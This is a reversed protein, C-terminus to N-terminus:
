GVKSISQYGALLAAALAEVLCSTFDANKPFAINRTSGLSEELPYL